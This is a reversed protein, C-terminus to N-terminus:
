EVMFVKRNEMRGIKIPESSSAANRAGDGAWVAAQRELVNQHTGILPRVTTVAASVPPIQGISIGNGASLGSKGVQLDWLALARPPPKESQTIFLM